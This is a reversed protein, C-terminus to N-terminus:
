TYEYFGAEQLCMEAGEKTTLGDDYADRSLWDPLCSMSLGCEAQVLADVASMWADYTM